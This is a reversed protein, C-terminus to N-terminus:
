SAQRNDHRSGLIRLECSNLVNLPILQLLEELILQGTKVLLLTYCHDHSTLHTDDFYGHGTYSFNSQGNWPLLVASGLIFFIWKVRLDALQVAPVSVEDLLQSEETSDVLDDSLQIQTQPLPVYPTQPSHSM